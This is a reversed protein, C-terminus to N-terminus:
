KEVQVGDWGIEWQPGPDKKWNWFFGGPLRERKLGTQKIIERIRRLQSGSTGGGLWLVEVQDGAPQSLKYVSTCQM